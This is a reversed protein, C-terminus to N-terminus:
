QVLRVALHYGSYINDIGKLLNTLPNLSAAKKNESNDNNRIWFKIKKNDSKIETKIIGTLRFKLINGNPGVCCIHMTEMTTQNLIIEWECKEFLEQLQEETPLNMTKANDYPIYLLEDNRKEYDAAWLTGSPLGLDIYKTKRDRIEMPIEQERAAYGEKYGELYADAIMKTIGENAKSEAYKFAKENIDM